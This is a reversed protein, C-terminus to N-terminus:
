RHPPVALLPSGIVSEYNAEDLFVRGLANSFAKAHSSFEAKQSSGQVITGDVDLTILTIRKLALLFQLHCLLISILLM